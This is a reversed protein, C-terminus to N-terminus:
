PAALAPGELSLGFPQDALELAGVANRHLGVREQFQGFAVKFKGLQAPLKYGESLADKTFLAQRALSRVSNNM